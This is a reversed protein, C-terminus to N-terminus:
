RVWLGGGRHHHHGHGYYFRFSPGYYYPGYYYPSYYAPGYTPYMYPAPQMPPPEPTNLDFYIRDPIRDEPGFFRGTGFVRTKVFQNTELPLARVVYYESGFDHFTGDPDGFIKVRLPANGVVENNVEIRAGPPSAEVLVSYAMTNNPGREAGPPITQCGTLFVVSVAAVGSVALIRNVKMGRFYRLWARWEVRM